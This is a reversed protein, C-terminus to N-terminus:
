TAFRVRGSQSNSARSMISRQSIRPIIWRRSRRRMPQITSIAALSEQHLPPLLSHPPSVVALYWCQFQSTSNPLKGNSPDDCGKTTEADTVGKDTKDAVKKNPKAGTVLM